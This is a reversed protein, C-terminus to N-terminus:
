LHQLPINLYYNPVLPSHQPPLPISVHNFGGHHAFPDQFDVSKATPSYVPLDNSKLHWFVTGFVIPQDPPLNLGYGVIVYKNSGKQIPKLATNQM